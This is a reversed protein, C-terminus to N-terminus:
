AVGAYIIKNFVITPQVNNHAADGGASGTNTSGSNNVQGVGNQIGTGTSTFIQTHTHSPMESTILTHTEAGGTAGLTDGNLGGSQNTLRNASSGGMDDKGASTRGRCDPLNFTTSGDGVGYTTSLATFLAAYTTRSVAQGYCLLWGTPASSGAYDSIAGVPVTGHAGSIAGTATITTTATIAGTVTLAGCAVAGTLTSAGTASLTGTVAVGTTAFDVVKAGALSLGVNDAGIRYLGCDLDASFTIGPLAVTGSAGKMQGTMAAEGNRPLSGTVESAFDTFNANMQSSSITGGSSFSHLVTM